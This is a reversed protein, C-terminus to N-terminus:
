TKSRVYNASVAEKENKFCKRNDGSKNKRLMKAYHRGGPVHYKYSNTNGVVPCNKPEYMDPTANALQSLICFIITGVTTAGAAKKM